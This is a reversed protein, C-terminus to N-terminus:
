AGGNTEASVGDPAQQVDAYDRLACWDGCIVTRRGYMVPVQDVIEDDVLDAGRGQELLWASRVAREPTVGPGYLQTEDRSLNMVTIMTM